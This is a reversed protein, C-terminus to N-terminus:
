YGLKFTEDSGSFVLVFGTADGPVDFMLFTNRSEGGPLPSDVLIDLGQKGQVYAFQPSSGALPFKRGQNDQLYVLDKPFLVIDSSQNAVVTPVIVFSGNQSAYTIGGEGVINATEPLGNLTIKWPTLTIEKGIDAKSADLQVSGGCGALGFLLLFLASVLAVARLVPAAPTAHMARSM